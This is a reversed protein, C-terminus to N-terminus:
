GTRLAYNHYYDMYWFMENAKMGERAVPSNGSAYTLFKRRYKTGEKEVFIYSDGM